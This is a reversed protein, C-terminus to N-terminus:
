QIKEQKHLEIVKEVAYGTFVLGGVLFGLPENALVTFGIATSLGQMFSGGVYGLGAYASGKLVHLGAEILDMIFIAKIKKNTLSTLLQNYLNISFSSKEIFRYM